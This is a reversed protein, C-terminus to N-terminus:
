NPTNSQANATAFIGVGIAADSCARVAIDAVQSKPM